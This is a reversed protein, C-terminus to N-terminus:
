FPSVFDILSVGNKDKESLIPNEIEWNINLNKDNWLITFEYNPYYYNSCKYNIITEDELVVFGHAFGKPVYLQKKNESSLEIKFYNKFTTSDKRLDVVIDLIKGKVVRILKAQDHPPKQFHLGRLVGKQSCSENDQVFELKCFVDVKKKSYFETFYGRKDKFIEPSLIILDKFNTTEIKM